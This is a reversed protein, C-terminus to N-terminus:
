SGVNEIFKSRDVRITHLSNMSLAPKSEVNNLEIYKNQFIGPITVSNDNQASTQESVDM